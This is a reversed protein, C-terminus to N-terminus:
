SLTKMRMARFIQCCTLALTNRRNVNHVYMFTISVFDIRFPVTSM